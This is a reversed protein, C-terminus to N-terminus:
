SWEAGFQGKWWEIYTEQQAKTLRAWQEDTIEGWDQAAPEPDPLPQQQPQPAAGWTSAFAPAAPAPAPAAAWGSAGAGASWAPAPAPAWSPVPAPSAAMAMSTDVAGVDQASPPPPSLLM